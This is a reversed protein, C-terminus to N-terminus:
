KDTYIKSINKILNDVNDKVDDYVNLLIDPSGKENCLKTIQNINVGIKRVQLILDVDAKAVIDVKLLIDRIYKSTSKYGAKKAKGQIIKKDDAKIKITLRIDKKKKEGKNEISM